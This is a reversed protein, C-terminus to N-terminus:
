PGGALNQGSAVACDADACDIASDPDGMQLGLVLNAKGLRAIDRPDLQRRRLDQSRKATHRLRWQRDVRWVVIASESLDNIGLLIVNAIEREIEVISRHARGPAVPQAVRKKM